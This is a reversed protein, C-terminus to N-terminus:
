KNSPVCTYSMERTNVCLMAGASIRVPKTTGEPVSSGNFTINEKGAYARTNMVLMGNGGAAKVRMVPVGSVNSPVFKITGQEARYPILTPLLRKVYRGSAKVQRVGAMNPMCDIGPRRKLRKPLYKKFPPIYGLILLILLAIGAFRILYPLYRDLLSRTDTVPLTGQTSGTWTAEGMKGDYQVTFPTDQYLEYSLTSDPLSPTATYLGPTDTKEVTFEGLNGGSETVAAQVTPLEMAAWEEATPDRGDLQVRIQVPGESQLGDRTVTCSPAEAITMDLEKDAYISYDLHTSVTHYDLYNAQADIQLPGEEIYLTDGSTYVTDQTEGNNTVTATYTVDGLLSSEPVKEDTGAKVLGFTITYEGAELDSMQTVEQGSADTLYAAIEVNPKYYVEITDAGSVDLTYSGAPFDDKYTLISGKLNKDVLFDTYNTAAQQSYQVTVPETSAAYTKGSADTIGNISVNAGQAFVVLESMPVDFDITRASVNVDLRDSNFIRTCIGTIKELIQKSSDASECYIGQEPYATITDANAGMGLFMVQVDPEKQAFFADIDDIGQFAGDTLVVLWKQDATKGTLDQYAKRVSDFPTNGAETVMAHVKSVNASQGDAGDLQLRPGADTGADFDSMDYVDLTDNEGLMAAFVEMAYKAQCWTDVNQGGSQIMSGSDDYVVHIVRRPEEEAGAPLAWLGVWCLVLFFVCLTSTWRRKMDPRRRRCPFAAKEQNTM